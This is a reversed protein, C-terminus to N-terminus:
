KDMSYALVPCPSLSVDVGVASLDVRIRALKNLVFVLALTQKSAMILVICCFLIVTIVNFHFMLITINLIFFRILSIELASANSCCYFFLFVFFFFLLFFFCLTIMVM